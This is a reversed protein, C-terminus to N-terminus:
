KESQNGQDLFLEILEEKHSNNQHIILSTLYVMTDYEVAMDYKELNTNTNQQFWSDFKRKRAYHRNDLNQCIYIVTNERYSM